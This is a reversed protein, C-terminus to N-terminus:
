YGKFKLHTASLLFLSYLLVRNSSIQYLFVEQTAKSIKQVPITPITSCPTFLSPHSSSASPSLRGCATRIHYHLSKKKKSSNQQPTPEEATGVQVHAPLRYFLRSHEQESNSTPQSAPLSTPVHELFAEEHRFHYSSPQIKKQFLWFILSGGLLQFKM